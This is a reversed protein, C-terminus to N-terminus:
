QNTRILLKAATPLADPVYAIGTMPGPRAIPTFRSGPQLNCVYVTGGLDTVFAKQGSHDLALGIGEALGRAVVERGSLGDPGIRARNLTNGDPEDGRDTWYLTANGPDLALDIPEPLGTVLTEIDDRSDADTGPPIDLGARYIAGQGGNKPGKQTWYVHRKVMDIAIGVCHRREDGADEPFRGRRVLVTVDGGDETSRMVRMGERDCWYLHGAVPNRQLQKPTVVTGHGVLLVANGGDLDSRYVAGDAATADVGMNTWFITGSASDVQVGDPEGEFGDLITRLGSGDSRLTLIAPPMKRLVFLTGEGSADKNHM